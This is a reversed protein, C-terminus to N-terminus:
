QFLNGQLKTQLFAVVRQAKDRTREFRVIVKDIFGPDATDVHRFKGVRGEAYVLRNGHEDRVRSLYYHAKKDLETALAKDEDPPDHSLVWERVEMINIDGSNRSEFWANFEEVRTWDQALAKQKM